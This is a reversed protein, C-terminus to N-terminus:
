KFFSTIKSQKLSAIHSTDMFDDISNVSALIEDSSEKSFLFSRVVSIARKAEEFTPIKQVAGQDDCDSDIETTEIEPEDPKRVLDVISQEDMDGSTVVDDDVHLFESLSFETDHHSALTECLKEFAERILVDSESAEEQADCQFGAKSFCGSISSASVNQWARSIFIVADLLSFNGIDGGEDIKRLISEIMLKRYNVKLCNIVGQDMPQTKPTTNPPLFILKINSLELKPHAPCNDIVIAVNRKERKFRKDLKRLWNEFLESTMWARKNFTYDVPLKKINKFCRPNQFKGIVLLPLKDSGDMNAGVLVTIREKSKKGGVCM